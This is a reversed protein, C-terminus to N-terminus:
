SRTSAQVCVAGLVVSVVFIIVSASVVFITNMTLTSGSAALRIVAFFGSGLILLPVAAVVLRGKSRTVAARRGSGTISPIPNSMVLQGAAAGLAVVGVILLDGKALLSVFSFNRIFAGEALFDLSIPSLGALVSTVLWVFFADSAGASSATTETFHATPLAPTETGQDTPLARIHQSKDLLRQEGRQMAGM